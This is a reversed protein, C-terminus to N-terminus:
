KSLFIWAWPLAFGGLLFGIIAGGDPAMQDKGKKNRHLCYFYGAASGILACIVVLGLGNGGSDDTDTNGMGGYGAHASMAIASMSIAAAILQLKTTKKMRGGPPM